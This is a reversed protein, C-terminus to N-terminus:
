HPHSRKDTQADNPTCSETCSVETPKVCKELVLEKVKGHNIVKHPYIDAHGDLEEIRKCACLDCTRAHERFVMEDQVFATKQQQAATRAIQMMARQIQEDRWREEAGGVLTGLDEDDPDEIASEQNSNISHVEVEKEKGKGGERRYRELMEHCVAPLRFVVKGIKNIEKRSFGGGGFLLRQRARVDEFSRHLWRMVDGQLREHFDGDIQELAEGMFVLGVEIRPVDGRRSELVKVRVEVARVTIVLERVCAVNEDGLANLWGLWTKAIDATADITFTTTKILNALEDPTYPKQSNNPPM